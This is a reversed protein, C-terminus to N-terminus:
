EEEKKSRMLEKISSTAGRLSVQNAQAVKGWTKEKAKMAFVQAFTKHAALAISHAVYIEGLTLGTQAKEKELTPTAVDTNITIISLMRSQNTRAAADIESILKNIAASDDARAIPASLSAAALFLLAPIRM